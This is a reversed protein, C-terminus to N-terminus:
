NFKKNSSPTLFSNCPIWTMFVVVMPSSLSLYFFLCGDQIVENEFSKLTSNWSTSFSLKWCLLSCLFIPFFLNLSGPINPCYICRCSPEKYNQIVLPMACSLLITELGTGPWIGSMGTDLGPFFSFYSISFLSFYYEFLVPCTLFLFLSLRLSSAFLSNHKISEVDLKGVWIRERGWM